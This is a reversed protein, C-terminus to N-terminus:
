FDYHVDATTGPETAREVQALRRKEIQALEEDTYFAKTGLNEPRQLPTYTANTWMGQLDPQGDPTRPPTWSKSVLSARAASASAPTSKTQGALSLPALLVAAMVFAFSRSRVQVERVTTEEATQPSRRLASGRRVGRM